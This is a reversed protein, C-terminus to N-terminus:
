ALGCLAPTSHALLRHAKWAAQESASAGRTDHGTLDDDTGDVDEGWWNRGAYPSGSSTTDTSPATAPTDTSM